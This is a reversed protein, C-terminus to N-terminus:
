PREVEHYELEVPTPRGFIEIMVTLKGTSEDILDIMGEFSEFPGKRIKVREGVRCDIKVKAPENKARLQSGLMREVDAESMAHPKGAAGTFDGVGVTDRVLYWTEDNLQMEVMIYGPYLKQERVKRKGGKTEAVRETPIVIRGFYESMGDRAIRRELSSKITGERNTQVKIVYWQLETTTSM